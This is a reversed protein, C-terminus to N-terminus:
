DRSAANGLADVAAPDGIVDIRDLPVREWLALLLDSANGRMAADGKAHERTVISTGDGLSVLWEGPTDTAHLHVSATPVDYPGWGEPTVFFTLFEDIGDSALVPDIVPELGAAREADWRHVIVEHAM